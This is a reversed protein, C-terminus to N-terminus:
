ETTDKAAEIAAAVTSKHKAARESRRDASKKIIAAQKEDSMFKWRKRGANSRVATMQSKTLKELKGARLLRQILANVTNYSLGLRVGIEHCTLGAGRWFIVQETLPHPKPRARWPQRAIKGQALLRRTLHHVSEVTRGVIKAIESNSLGQNRLTEVAKYDKLTPLKQRSPRGDQFKHPNNTHCDSV